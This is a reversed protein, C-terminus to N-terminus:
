TAERRSTIGAEAEALTKIRGLSEAIHPRMDAHHKLFLRFIVSVPFKPMANIQYSHTLRTAAGDAALQYRWTTSDKNLWDPLTRFQFERGPEASEVEVLRSWRVFGSRNWGRFRAGLAAGDAGDLWKCRHCEPSWEGTRTVDSILDYVANPEANILVEVEGGLREEM